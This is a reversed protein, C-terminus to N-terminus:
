LSQNDVFEWLTCTSSHNFTIAVVAYLRCFSRMPGLWLGSWGDDADFWVVSSQVHKAIWIHPPTCPHASSWAAPAVRCQSRTARFSGCCRTPPSNWVLTTAPPWPCAGRSLALAWSELPSRNEPMTCTWSDWYEICCTWHVFVPLKVTEQVWHDVEKVLGLGLRM